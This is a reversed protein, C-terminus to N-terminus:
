RWILMADGFSYFRYEQAIAEQYLQLLCERGSEGLFSSVMMMLTSRPLHFNTILGDLVKWEYGSYIMLDTKGKFPLLNSSEIARVVTTGVGIVRGGNAKTAKIREITDETVEFSEHHMKHTTIDEAEVPRFTGLGVHLTIYAQSVGMEKLEDLLRETFHLGATPAAIAGPNKAYVTQYQEANAEPAAIYPPFPIHGYEAIVDDLTRDEPIHFLLERGRTEPDTGVVQAKVDETFVITSGVPLRKGPKVLALWRNTELPEMLLIEVPVGSFKHGYMRAPIVRTDNFILLDGPRLLKPLEAFQHHSHSRDSSVVLLRSSDRPVAPSQAIRDGPLEYEYASLSLDPNLMPLKCIPLECSM